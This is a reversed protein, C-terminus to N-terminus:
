VAKIRDLGCLDVSSQDQGAWVHGGSQDQGTWVHGSSQDQRAVVHRCQKSGICILVAKIRDLRCM